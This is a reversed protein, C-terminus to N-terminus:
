RRLIFGIVGFMAGFSIAWVGKIIARYMYSPDIFYLIVAGVIGIVLGIVIEIVSKKILESDSGGHGCICLLGFTPVGFGGGVLLMFGLCKLIPTWQSDTLISLTNNIM